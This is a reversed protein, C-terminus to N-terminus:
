THQIQLLIKKMTGNLYKIDITQLDMVGQLMRKRKSHVHGENELYVYLPQM